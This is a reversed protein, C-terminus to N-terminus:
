VPAGHRFSHESLARAHALLNADPTGVPIGRRAVSLEAAEALAGEVWGLVPVWGGVQSRYHDLSQLRNSMRRYSAPQIPMLKRIDDRTQLFPAACLPLDDEPFDIAAGWDATECYTDSRTGVLVRSFDSLVTLNAECLARDDLYVRALPAGVHRAALAMLTNFKPARYAAPNGCLRAAMRECTNSM